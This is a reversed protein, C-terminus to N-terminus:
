GPTQLAIHPVVAPSHALLSALSPIPLSYTNCSVTPFQSGHYLILCPLVLSTLAEHGSILMYSNQRGTDSSHHNSLKGFRLSSLYIYM